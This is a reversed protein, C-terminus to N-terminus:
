TKLKRATWQQVALSVVCYSAFWYFGPGFSADFAIIASSTGPASQTAQAALYTIFLAVAFVDAMSWKAIIEVFHLTRQRGAEDRRFLAWFVLSMKGFPVIVSFLLILTAATYSGVRYLHEVSGLISRTQHYVEIQQGKKLENALQTGLQKVLAGKLGGPALELLPVMAPNILPRIAAVAQDSIGQNLLQPALEAIGDPQLLGRVTIVPRVLGPILLALTLALAALATLRLSAFSATM